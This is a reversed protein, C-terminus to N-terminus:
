CNGKQTKKNDEAVVYENPINSHEMNLSNIAQTKTFPVYNASLVEKEKQDLYRLASKRNKKMHKRAKKAADKQNREVIANMYEVDIMEKLHNLLIDVPEFNILIKEEDGTKKCENLVDTLEYMLTEIDAQHSLYIDWMSHRNISHDAPDVHFYMTTLPERVHSLLFDKTKESLCYKSLNITKMRFKYHGFINKKLLPFIIAYKDDWCSPIVDFSVRFVWSIIILILIFILLAIINFFNYDM